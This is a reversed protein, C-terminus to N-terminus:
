CFYIRLLDLSCNHESYLIKGVTGLLGPYNALDNLPLVLKAQATCYKRLLNIPSDMM